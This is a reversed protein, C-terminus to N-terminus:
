VSIRIKSGLWISVFERGPFVYLVPLAVEQKESFYRLYYTNLYLVSILRVLHLLQM